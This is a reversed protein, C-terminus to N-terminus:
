EFTKVKKIFCLDIRLLRTEALQHSNFIFKVRPVVIYKDVVQEHPLKLTFQLKGDLFHLGLLLVIVTKSMKKVFESTSM